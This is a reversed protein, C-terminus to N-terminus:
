SEEKRASKKFVDNITNINQKRIVLTDYIEEERTGRMVLDIVYKTIPKGDIPTMRAEAQENFGQAFDRDFFLTYKAAPLTLSERGVDLQILIVKVDDLTQFDKEAEKRESMSKSGDIVVYNIGDVDLRTALSKLPQLKKAMVIGKYGKTSAKKIFSSTWKLKPAVLDYSAVLGSPDICIQQLRTLQVLGNICDIDDEYEMDREVSRYIEAQKEDMDLTYALHQVEYDKFLELERKKTQISSIQMLFNLEDTRKLSKCVKGYSTDECNYFYEKFLNFDKYYPQFGIKSHNILSFLGFIDTSSKVAPTGTVGITHLHIKDKACGEKFQFIATSQVTKFNRLRHVEDGIFMVKNSYKLNYLKRLQAYTFLKFLDYTIVKVNISASSIDEIKALDKIHKVVNVTFTEKGYVENLAEMESVWGHIGSKPSVIIACSGDELLSRTAALAVRTKGTRQESLILGSPYEPTEQMKLLLHLLDYAQYDRLGHKVMTHVVDLATVDDLSTKLSDFEKKIVKKLKSLLTKWEKEYRVDHTLIDSEVLRKFDVFWYVNGKPYDICVTLVKVREERYFKVGYFDFERLLKKIRVDSLLYM